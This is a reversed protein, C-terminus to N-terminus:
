TGGKVTLLNCFAIYSLFLISAVPRNLKSEVRSLLPIFFDSLGGHVPVRQGQEPCKCASGLNSTIALNQTGFEPLASPPKVQLM